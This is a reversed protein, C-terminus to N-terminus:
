LLFAPFKLPFCLNQHWYYIYFGFLVVAGLILMSLVVLAFINYCCVMGFGIDSLVHLYQPDVCGGLCHWVCPLVHPHLLALWKLTIHLLVSVCTFGTLSVSSILEDFLGVNM